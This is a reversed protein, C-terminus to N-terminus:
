WKERENLYKVTAFVKNSVADVGCYPIFGQYVIKEGKKFTFNSVQNEDVLVHVDINKSQYNLEMSKQEPKFGLFESIFDDTEIFSRITRMDSSMFLLKEGQYVCTKNDINKVCSVDGEYNKCIKVLM